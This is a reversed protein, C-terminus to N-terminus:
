EEEAITDVFVGFKLSSLWSLIESQLSDRLEEKTPLDPNEWSAEHSALFDGSLDERDATIQIEFIYTEEM